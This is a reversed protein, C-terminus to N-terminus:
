GGFEQTGALALAQEVVAELIEFRQGQVALVLRDGAQLQPFARLPADVDAKAIAEGDGDRLAHAVLQLGGDFRLTGQKCREACALADTRQFEGEGALGIQFQRQHGHFRHRQGVHERAAHVADAHQKVLISAGPFRVMVTYRLPCNMGSSCAWTGTSSRPKMKPSPTYSTIGTYERRAKRRASCRFRSCCLRSPM